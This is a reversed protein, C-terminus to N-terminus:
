GIRLPGRRLGAPGEFVASTAAGGRLLDDALLVVAGSYSTTEGAPFESREPYVLGTLYAGDERRKDATTELVRRADDPRGIAVLAIALEATEATTM